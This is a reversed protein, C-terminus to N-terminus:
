GVLSMMALKLAPLLLRHAKLTYQEAVALLMLGGVM